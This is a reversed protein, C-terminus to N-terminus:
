DVAHEIFEDARADLQGSYRQQLLQLMSVVARLPEQLDHSVFYAFQELETNSRALEAATQTLEEDARKREIAYCLVRALLRGDVQDKILYDQAGQRIAKVAFAEDDFGTLIVIPLEPAADQVQQFTERRHSDPLSLDLLIVEVQENALYNLAEDLRKMHKLEFQAADVEALVEELLFADGPNDEILLIKM